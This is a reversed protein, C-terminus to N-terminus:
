DIITFANENFLRTQGHASRMIKKPTFYKESKQLSPWKILATLLKRQATYHDLKCPIFKRWFFNKSIVGSPKVM